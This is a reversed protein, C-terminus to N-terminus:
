RAGQGPKPAVATAAAQLGAAAAAEAARYNANNQQVKQVLENVAKVTVQIEQSWDTNFGACAQAMGFEGFDADPHSVPDQYDTSVTTLDTAVVGLQRVVQDLADPQVGYGGTGTGM